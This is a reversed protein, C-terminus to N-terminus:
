KALVESASKDLDLLLRQAPRYGPAAELALLVEDIAEAAKNATKYARALNYHSAAQDLPKMALAARFERIAETGNGQALLLNGLRRHLEEDRPYIFNIRSLAEIAEEPRGQSELLTALAKLSEPNRGGAKAYRELEITASKEDKKAVYADALVEYLSGAEVYEPYLDRIAPADRIVDDKKEAKLLESIHAMGKKWNDFGEVTKRTEAEVWALFLKDLEEPKMGLQEVIVETTDKRKGFAQLMDLLKQYGWKGKIFDCIKGAQYYSIIVQDPATPHVFGRDLQAVPLLKKDRIALIVPPIIRDGWEPSTATEEHVAMGETFWRPVRSNTAALTFVHSLEHWETSAWHFDGPKRSNPSDLAITYGFTVGLAGMGPMGLVRVAFDEHDPYVEIQVPHELRMKYKAEYTAIARRTEEELYPQLLDVERENLKLIVNGSKIYKFNKYSELLRRPNGVAPYTEGANYCQDLLAKAEEEQGMRMLNLGLEARAKWLTPNLELAKRYFRIAEDYRRNLVFFRGAAAYVEGYVPNIKLIRELYPTDPKDDLLDITALIAMAELSEPDLALAKQAEEVSKRPDNDELAISALLVRAEVLKPDVELAKRALDGAKGEFGESALLALGLIAGAHVDKIELAEVFLDQADKPQVRELFMRGWRVRYDANKPQAKVAERFEVNADPFLRMAWAAEARIYPDKSGALKLYCTSEEQLKGRHRLERCTDLTQASLSVAFLFLGCLLRERVNAARIV